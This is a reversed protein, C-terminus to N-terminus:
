RRVQPGGALVEEVDKASILAIDGWMSCKLAAVAAATDVVEALDRGRLAAWLFGAVYADGAGIPDVVHVSFRRSPRVLRGGDWTLSGADGMLLTVTAKPAMRALAEIIQSPEGALEFIARTEELGIFLFRVSSLATALWARADAASWLAARYNADLSVTAAEHLAREALARSTASLAPTIGTLHVVRAQRVPEWDVEEPRLRAFASDRRDYLVRIPRPPVGYELFYLGLRAGEIMKVQACDVGHGALEHRVREGWVNAPLASIWATRLGLRAGAAAVNAESGGIQIDLAKATEIRTPSPVALRLLVEGLTVLDNM